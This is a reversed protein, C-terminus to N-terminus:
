SGGRLIRRMWRWGVLNWALGVPVCIWGIPGALAGRAEHSWLLTLALVVLPLASLVAASVRAQSTHVRREDRAVAQDRWSAACRDLVDATRGGTEAAVRLVTCVSRLGTPGRVVDPGLADVVTAGRELAVQLPEIARLVAPAADVDLLAVRVTDGARMARALGDCWAALELETPPRAPRWRRTPGSPRLYTAARVSWPPGTRRAPPTRREPPSSRGTGTTWTRRPPTLVHPALGAGVLVVVTAAWLAPIM